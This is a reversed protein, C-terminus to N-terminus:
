SLTFKSTKFSVNDFTISTKDSLTITTSGASVMPHEIAYDLQKQSYGSLKVTLGSWFDNVYDHGGSKGKTVLLTTLDGHGSAGSGALTENGSGAEILNKKATVDILATGSGGVFTLQSGGTVTTGGSGRADVTDNGAGLNINWTGHNSAGISVVDNGDGLVISGSARAHQENFVIHGAGGMVSQDTASSGNITANNTDVVTVVYHDPLNVTGRHTQVYEYLGASVTPATNDPEPIISGKLVGADINAALVLAAQYNPENSYKLNQIEGNAGYVSATSM